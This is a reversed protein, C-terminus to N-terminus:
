LIGTGTGIGSINFYPLTMIPAGRISDSTLPITDPFAASQASYVGLGESVGFFSANSAASNSGYVRYAILNSFQAQLISHGLVFSNGQSASQNSMGLWYRGPSLTLNMPLPLVRFGAITNAIYSSVSANNVGYQSTSHSTANSLGIYHTLSLRTSSSVSGSIYSLSYSTLRSIRDTSAGTGRTYLGYGFALWATSNNPAGSYTHTNSLFFNVRSAYVNEQVDFPVFYITSQGISSNTVNQWKLPEFASVTTLTPGSITILQGTNSGTAGGFTFTVCSLTINNIGALIVLGSVGTNGLTNGGTSVGAAAVRITVTASDVDISQSYQAGGGAVFVYQNSVLGTTGATGGISSIGASFPVYSGTITSANLGFSIGNSNSFTFASALNSTTGASLNISGQTSAVTVTGTITGANIGFSINNSDSFTFASSLVSTTGASIRISGQTSAVTVTATVTSGDLGFSVNNSNSLVFASLNNSTTGASLNIATLSTNITATITSANLGFSVGGGDAFTVASLLNSTTGASIRINSLSTAITATATIVGANIGFSVNNSNSFTFGSSLVSTTGASVRISGQTSVVIATATVTNGNLGFSINNSDSFIFNSSLNSTTGASLNVSGQTSAVTAIATVTSGNLGFSVNNSNSFVAASLNNSTTGASLNVATLSTAISGTLTSGDLGFSVGNSNSFTVASLLNSTTGASIRVNTLSTAVSATITSADLGFSVNSGNSFTLASLLNSTTGASVRINTLGGAATNAASITISQGDQNLTINNGGALILTGSSILGLVGSTNGSLSAALIGSNISVGGPNLLSVIKFDSMLEASYTPSPHGIMGCM